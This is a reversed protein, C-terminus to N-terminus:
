RYIETKEFMKYCTFSSSTLYLYIVTYTFSNIITRITRCHQVNFCLVSTFKHFNVNLDRIFYLVHLIDVYMKTEINM